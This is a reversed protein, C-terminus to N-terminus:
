AQWLRFCFVIKALLWPLICYHLVEFLGERLILGGVILGGLILGWEIKYTLM